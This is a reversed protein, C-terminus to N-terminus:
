KNIKDATKVPLNDNMKCAGHFIAGQEVVLSKTNIDGNVMSKAQLEIRETAHVNGDVRGTIVASKTHIDAEVKGDPGISITESCKVSGKVKGDVRLSGQVNLTGDFVADKGVVTNINEAM